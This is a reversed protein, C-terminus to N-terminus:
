FPLSTYTGKLTTLTWSNVVGLYNRSSSADATYWKGNVWIQTWVHGYTGSTFKCTGHQYRAPIGVARCLAILLHSTDVCNGSKAKLTGVAGYKTNYYFSYTVNDRVWNFIAEAKAYASTKGSTISAALAQIQSDNVQCNTTAALYIKLSDPVAMDTTAATTWPTVSVYSPLRHNTEQFSLVRSFMYILSEPRLKGLSSTVYNPLRGNANIFANVRKAIDLYGAKTITGSKISESPTNASNVTKLTIPTTTGSNIELLASTMLKLFDSMQVQTNGITVSSPLQKNTQIYSKVRSAADKIQSLTFTTTVTETMGAAAEDNNQVTDSSNVPNVTSTVTSQNYSSSSNEITNVTIAAKSQNSVPQDLNEQVSSNNVTLVPATGNDAASAGAM